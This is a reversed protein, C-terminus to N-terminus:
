QEKLFETLAESYHRLKPRKTNLLASFAPRRAPRPFSEPLVPEVPTTIGAQRYLELVGEYWTVAGENVLHYLGFAERSELLEKTALALDPAYTFCSMEGDVVQVNPRTKGAELMVGFFSKKGAASTAPKGFLKSLRIIYHETTGNQVAREGALKTEAYRSLPNPVADEAYGAKTGHCNGGCCVGQCQKEKPPELTGDFVYDTSYHVLTFDLERSLRALERPLRVNLLTAQTLEEESNECADVANYAVGNVVIQPNIEALKEALLEFHTVDIDGSDWTTVEYESSERFVRALEQGLMGQSGLIVVKLM